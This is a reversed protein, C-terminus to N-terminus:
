KAGRATPLAAVGFNADFAVHRGDNGTSGRHVPDEGTQRRLCLIRHRSSAQQYAAESHWATSILYAM